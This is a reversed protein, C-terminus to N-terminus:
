ENRGASTEAPRFSYSLRANEVLFENINIGSLGKPLPIATAKEKKGEDQKKVPITMRYIVLEPTALRILTVDIRRKNVFDM